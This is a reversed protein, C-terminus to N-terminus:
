RHIIGKIDQLEVIASRTRLQDLNGIQSIDNKFSAETIENNLIAENETIIVSVRSLPLKKGAGTVEGLIIAQSEFNKLSKNKEQLLKEVDTKSLCFATTNIFMLSLAIITKM